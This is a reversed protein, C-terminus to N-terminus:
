KRMALFSCCHFGHELKCLSLHRVHWHYLCGCYHDGGEGVTVTGLATIRESNVLEPYALGFAILHEIKAPMLEKSDLRKLVEKPWFFRNLQVLVLEVQQDVGQLPINYYQCDYGKANLKKVMQELTQNYNVIVKYSKEM